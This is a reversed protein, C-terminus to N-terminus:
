SSGSRKAALDAKGSDPLCHLEGLGYQDLLCLYSLAVTEEDVRESIALESLPLMDDLRALSWSIFDRVTRGKHPYHPDDREM